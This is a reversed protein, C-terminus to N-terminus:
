EYPAEILIMQGSTECSGVVAINEIIILPYHGFAVVGASTIITYDTGLETGMVAIQPSLPSGSLLNVGELHNLNLIYWCKGSPVERREDHKLIITDQAQCNAPAILLFSAIILSVLHKM